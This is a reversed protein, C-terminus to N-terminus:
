KALRIRNGEKEEILHMAFQVPRRISEAYLDMAKMQKFIERGPKPNVEILWSKGDVDVGIDLGFEMMRGFKEELVFAVQHAMHHCERLIQQAREEGFRKTVLRHFPIARGGGHLNSTSSGSEGMRVGCGTVSWQGKENKQILLRIDTVRNPLLELNLGQQVLFNGNSIRQETVWKRVWKNVEEARQLSANKRAYRKDRGQLEYRKGRASVKLISKGGTGNGPKVYLIPYQRLMTKLKEPSYVYTEPIWMKVRADNALLETVRWKKSFPSNAFDFLNSHRLKMYEPVRRRYRDIVIQPWSHWASEWGGGVKPVFGRIKRDKAFVDQHSFLFVEAGLERGAKVLRSLYDPEAFRKGERWTLIGIVKKPTM